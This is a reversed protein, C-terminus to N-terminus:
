EVERRRFRCFSGFVFAVVVGVFSWAVVILAATKM